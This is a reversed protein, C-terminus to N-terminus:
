SKKGLSFLKKKITLPTLFNLMSNERVINISKQKRLSYCASFSNILSVNRYIILSIRM